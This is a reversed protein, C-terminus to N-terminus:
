AKQAIRIIHNEVEKSATMVLDALEDVIIVYYRLRTPIRSKEAEDVVGFREYIQAPSLRNYGAINKVNAEKLLEYREDMKMAAWELIEEAKRADHVIPCLLHPINEFAALEVMKPDILILGVEEPRRTMLIATIISNICVSKGSGTTGAILMHPMTALDAVIANGGADKGLYLPLHMRKAGKPAMQMLEKIRVIEKDLNPVEIGITDRGPLPSVIRVGPVALSRAIDNALNCVAAVKVGPALSLEFLTIVPGTMYGVIEAEVGFDDLTQRLITRKQEAQLEQSEIYGGSAEALLDASPLSYEQEDDSEIRIPHQPSTIREPQLSPAEQGGSTQKIGLLSTLKARQSAPESEVSGKRGAAQRSSKLPVAAAARPSATVEVSGSDATVMHPIRRRLKGVMSPLRDRHAWVKKSFRPLQLVLNDAALMLGICLTIAVLIWAGTLGFRGLLVKGGAMGVVGASGYLADASEIPRHVYVATSTAVVLVGGRRGAM